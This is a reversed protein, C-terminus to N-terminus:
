DKPSLLWDVGLWDTNEKMLEVKDEQQTHITSWVHLINDKLYYSQKSCKYVSGGYGYFYFYDKDEEVRTIGQDIKWLDNNEKNKEDWGVLIRYHPNEGNVKIMVWNDPNYEKPWQTM